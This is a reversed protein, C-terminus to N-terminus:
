LEDEENLWSEKWGLRDLYQYYDYAKVWSSKVGLGYELYYALYYICNTWEISSYELYQEAYYGELFNNYAQSYDGEANQILALYYYPRADRNGYSNDKVMQNIAQQYFQKASEKYDLKRALTGLRYYDYYDKKAGNLYALKLMQEAKDFDGISVYYESLKKAAKRRVLMANDKKQKALEPNFESATKEEYSLSNNVIINLQERAAYSLDSDDENTLAKYIEWQAAISGESAARKIYDWGSSENIKRSVVALGYDYLMDPRQIEYDPNKEDVKRIWETKVYGEIGHYNVQCWDDGYENVIMRERDVLMLIINSKSTTDPTERLSLRDGDGTYVEYIDKNKQNFFDVQNWQNYKDVSCKSVATILLLICHVFVIISLIIFVNRFRGKRKEDPNKLGPFVTQTYTGQKKDDPKSESNASSNRTFFSKTKGVSFDIFSKSRVYSSFESALLVKNKESEFNLLESPMSDNFSLFVRQVKEFNRNSYLAVLKSGNILKNNCLFVFLIKDYSSIKEDELYKGAASFSNQDFLTENDKAFAFLELPQININKEADSFNCFLLESESQSKYSYERLSYIYKRLEKWFKHNKILTSDDLFFLVASKRGSM